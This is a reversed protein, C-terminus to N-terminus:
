EEEYNGGFSKLGNASAMIVGATRILQAKVVPNKEGDAKEMLERYILLSERLKADPHTVVAGLAEIKEMQERIVAEQRRIKGENKDQENKVYNCCFILKDAADGNMPYGEPYFHPSGLRRALEDIDKKVDLVRCANNYFGECYERFLEAATEMLVDEEKSLWVRIAYRDTKDLRDLKEKLRKSFGEKVIPYLESYKWRLLKNNDM